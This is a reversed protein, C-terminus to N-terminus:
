KTDNVGVPEIVFTVKDSDNVQTNVNVQTGEKKNIGARDAISNVNLGLGSVIKQADVAGGVGMDTLEEARKLLKSNVRLALNDLNKIEQVIDFNENVIQNIEKIVISASEKTAMQSIKQVNERIEKIENSKNVQWGATKIRNQIASHTIGYERALARVAKGMEYKTRIELWKQEPLKM